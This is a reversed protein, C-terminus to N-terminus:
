NRDNVLDGPTKILIGRASRYLVVISSVIIFIISRYTSINNLQFYNEGTELNIGLLRILMRIGGLNGFISAFITSILITFIIYPILIKMYIKILEGSEIGFAMLTGLNTKISNLHNKFYQTLFLCISIVAFILLLVSLSRTVESIFKFNDKAEVQSMDIELEFRKRLFERFSRVNKLSSFNISLNDYNEYGETHTLKLYYIRKIDYEDVKVTECINNYIEDLESITSPEPYFSINISYGGWYSDSYKKFDYMPDLNLYKEVSSLYKILKSYYRNAETSDANIFVNLDKYNSPNFPNGKGKLIMRQDYFYRTTAFDALGPLEKVLAIVPLPIYRRKEEDTNFLMNVFSTKDPYHLKNLFEETIILGMCKEDSHKEGWILNRSRFIENMMPDDAEITRGYMPFSGSSKLDKFSLVYQYYGRISDFQYKVSNSDASIEQEIKSIKDSLKYPVVIDIWNVFPNDMKKSLYRITGNSFGIAIFTLLLILVLLITNLMDKLSSLGFIEKSEQKYFVKFFDQNIPDSDGIEENVIQHNQDKNSKVGLLYLIMIKDFILQIIKRINKM